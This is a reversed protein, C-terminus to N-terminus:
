NAEETAREFQSGSDGATAAGDTLLKNVDVGRRILEARIAQTTGQMERIIQINIQVAPTGETLEIAQQSAVKSAIFAQMPTLEHAKKHAVDAAIASNLLARRALEKKCEAFLDAHRTALRKITRECVGSQRSAGKVTGTEAFAKVVKAAVDPKSVEIPPRGPKKPRQPKM